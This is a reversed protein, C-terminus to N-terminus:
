SFRHLTIYHAQLTSTTHKYHAQLTSTTHKYHDQHPTSFFTAVKSHEQVARADSRCQGKQETEAWSAGNRSWSAGNRGLEAREHETEAWSAEGIQNRMNRKATKLELIETEARGAVKAGRKWKVNPVEGCVHRRVALRRRFSRLGLSM